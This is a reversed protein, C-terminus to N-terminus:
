IKSKVLATTLSKIAWHAILRTASDSKVAQGAYGKKFIQVMGRLKRSAEPVTKLKENEALFIEWVM